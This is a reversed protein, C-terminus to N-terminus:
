DHKVLFQDGMFNQVENVSLMAKIMRIQSTLEFALSANLTPRTALFEQISDHTLQLKNLTVLLEHNNNHIRRMTLYALDDSLLHKYRYCIHQPNRSVFELQNSQYYAVLRNSGHLRLALANVSASSPFHKDTYRYEVVALEGKHKGAYAGVCERIVVTDGSQPIENSNRYPNIDKTM